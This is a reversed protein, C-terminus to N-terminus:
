KKLRQSKSSLFSGYDSYKQRGFYHVHLQEAKEYAEVNTKSGSMCAYFIEDFGTATMNCEHAITKPLVVIDNSSGVDTITWKLTGNEYIQIM